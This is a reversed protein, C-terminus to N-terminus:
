MWISFINSANSPRQILTLPTRGNINKINLPFKWMRVLELIVECNGAEAAYHLLTNGKQDSALLNAGNQLLLRITPLAEGKANKNKILDKTWLLPTKKAWSVGEVCAGRVILLNMLDIKGEQVAFCLPTSGMLACPQNIDAGHNLLTEIEPITGHFACALHLPAYGSSSYESLNLLPNDTQLADMHAQESESKFANEITDILSKSTVVNIELNSMFVPIQQKRFFIEHLRPMPETQRYFARLENPRTIFSTRFIGSRRIIEDIIVKLDFSTQRMRVIGIIGDKDDVLKAIVHELVLRNTQYAVMLNTFLDMKSFEYMQAQIEVDLCKDKQIAIELRTIQPQAKAIKVNQLPTRKREFSDLFYNKDFGQNVRKASKMKSLLEDYLDYHGLEKLKVIAEYDEKSPRDLVEFVKLVMKNRREPDKITIAADLHGELFFCQRRTKEILFDLVEVHGM